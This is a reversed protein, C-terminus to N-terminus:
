FNFCDNYYDSGNFFFYDATEKQSVSVFLLFSCNGHFVSSVPSFPFFFFLLDKLLKYFIYLIELLWIWHLWGVYLQM